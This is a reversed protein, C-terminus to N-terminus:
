KNYQKISPTIGVTTIKGDMLMRVSFHQIAVVQAQGIKDGPMVTQGNIIAMQKNASIYIKSVIFHDIRKKYDGTDRKLVYNSPRTPDSLVPESALLLNSIILGMLGFFFHITMKYVSGVM